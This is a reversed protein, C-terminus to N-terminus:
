MPPLVSTALTAVDPQGDTANIALPESAQEEAQTALISQTVALCNFIRTSGSELTYRLYKDRM